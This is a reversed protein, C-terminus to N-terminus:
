GRARRPPGAYRLQERLRTPQIRSPATAHRRTTRFTIVGPHLSDGLADGYKRPMGLLNPVDRHEEANRRSRNRRANSSQASPKGEAGAVHEGLEDLELTPQALASLHSLYSGSLGGDRLLQFFPHYFMCTNLDINRSLIRDPAARSSLTTGSQDSCAERWTPDIWRTADSTRDTKCVTPRPSPGKRPAPAAPPKHEDPSPSPRSGPRVVNPPSGTGTTAVNAVGLRVEITPARVTQSADASSPSTSNEKSPRM